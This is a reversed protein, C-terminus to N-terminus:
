QRTQLRSQAAQQVKHWVASPRLFGEVQLLVGDEQRKMSSIRRTEQERVLGPLFHLYDGGPSAMGTLMFDRQVSWAKPHRKHAEHMM